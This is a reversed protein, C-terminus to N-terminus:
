KRTLNEAPQGVSVVQQTHTPNPPPIYDDIYVVINYHTFLYIIIIIIFLIM